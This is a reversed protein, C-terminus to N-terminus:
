GTCVVVQSSAHGHQLMSNMESISVVKSPKKKSIKTTVSKDTKGQSSGSKEDKYVPNTADLKVSTANSTVSMMPSRSDTESDLSTRNPLPAMPPPALSSPAAGQSTLHSDDRTTFNNFVVTDIGKAKELAPGSAPATISGKGSHFVSNRGQDLQSAHTSSSLISGDPHTNNSGEVESNALSADMSFSTIKGALSSLLKSYPLESFQVVLVLAVTVGLFSVLRRTEAHCLFRFGMDM